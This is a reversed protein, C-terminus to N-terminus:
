GEATYLATRFKGDQDVIVKRAFHLHIFVHRVVALKFLDVTAEVVHM